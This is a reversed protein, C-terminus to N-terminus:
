ASPPFHRVHLAELDFRRGIDDSVTNNRDVEEPRRMGALAVDVLPNSLVFNLLFPEWDIAATEPFCQRMLKQFIGSTLTRMTVVGLGQEKATYVVGQHNIFDAPQQNLLNYRIQLVDFAGSEVLRHVGPSPGEATFGLFRVKGAARLQQFTELGGEELIQRVEAPPYWSGHFQLVDIVDTQLRQRSAEVSERIGAPDRAGTKTAVICEARRRAIVSGYIAEGTGAGYGPATDLYNLGLDLARELAREVEAREVAAGPDWRELYHPIGAPAGGFGVESVQLGTRGLTRYRM